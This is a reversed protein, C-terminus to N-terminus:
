ICPSIVLFNFIVILIVLVNIFCHPCYCVFIIFYAENCTICFIMGEPSLSSLVNIKLLRLVQLQGVANKAPGMRRGRSFQIM